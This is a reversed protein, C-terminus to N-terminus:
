QAPAEDLPLLRCYKYFLLPARTLVPFFALNHKIYIHMHNTTNCSKMRTKCDVLDGVTAHLAAASALHGEGIDSSRYISLSLFKAKSIFNLNTIYIKADQKEWAGCKV